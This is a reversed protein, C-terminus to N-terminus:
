RNDADFEVAKRQDVEGIEHGVEGCERHREIQIRHGDSVDHGVRFEVELLTPHGDALHQLGGQLRDSQLEGLFASLNDNSRLGVHILIELRLRIVNGIKGVGVFLHLGQGLLNDSQDTGRTPRFRTTGARERNGVLGQFDLLGRGTMELQRTKQVSQRATRPRSGRLSNGSSRSSMVGTNARASLSSLVGRETLKESGVSTARIRSCRRASVSTRNSTSQGEVSGDFQCGVVREVRAARVLRQGFQEVAPQFRKVQPVADGIQVRDLDGALRREGRAGVHLDIRELPVDVLLAACHIWSNLCCM